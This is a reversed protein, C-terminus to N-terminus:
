LVELKCPISFIYGYRYIKHVKFAEPTVDVITGLRNIGAPFVSGEIFMRISRKRLSQGLASYIYGKRDEFEYFGKSIDSIENPLPYYMSLSYLGDLNSPIVIDIESIEPKAFLGKGSTRDGGIGEHALLNLTSLIKKKFNNDKFDLLLFLGSASHYTVQGFHFFNEGPHNTLRSLSIRPINEVEWPFPPITKIEEKIKELTEGHLLRQLGNLDVFLIKKLEKNKPIQNKPVPFFYNEGSYPFASSILFTPTGDVFGKLLTDLEGYLLLYSHCIASFLTDSPIYYKSGERWNERDGIHLPGKPKLKVVTFKM